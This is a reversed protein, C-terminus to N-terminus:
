AEPVLGPVSTGAAFQQTLSKIKTWLYWAEFIRDNKLLVFICFSVIIEHTIM